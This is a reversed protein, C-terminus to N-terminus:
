ESVLYVEVERLGFALASDHSDFYIDIWTEGYPSYGTDEVTYTVGDIMLQTGFPLSNCAITRGETALTGSATYGSSYEGCCLPCSCYATATWTGLYMLEPEADSGNGDMGSESNESENGNGMDSDRDSNNDAYGMEATESGEIGENSGEVNGDFRDPVVVSSRDNGTSEQHDGDNGQLGDTPEGKGVVSLHYLDFDPYPTPAETEKPMQVIDIERHGTTATSSEEEGSGSDRENATVNRVGIAIVIVLLVLICSKIVTVARISGRNM